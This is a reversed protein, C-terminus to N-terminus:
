EQAAGGRSGRGGRGGGRAPAPPPSTISDIPRKGAWAIARLLMTQVQPVAFSEIRHGQMWVFARHPQGGALTREATWIQPVVQTADNPLPATALVHVEPTTRLAFFAEDDIEFNSMGQTIPHKTDTFTYKVVGAASNREGHQKAAGAVTAFWPADDSCMGDHFALVGGGRKLFTELLSRESPSCTGGDGKFIILVDTNALEQATPFHLAGDVVVGRDKLLTSWTGLFRPYDHLSNEGAGHTKEGARIFVRLPQPQSQEALVTVGIILALTAGLWVRTRM